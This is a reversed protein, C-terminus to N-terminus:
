RGTMGKWQYKWFTGLAAFALFYPLYLFAAVPYVRLLSRERLRRAALAISAGDLLSKGAFAMWAVPVGLLMGVLLAALLGYVCLGVAAVSLTLKGVGSYMRIRQQVFESWSEPPATWVRANPADCYTAVFGQGVARQLFLHDDGSLMRSAKGFGGVADFVHKRYGFSRGACTIPWGLGIGSMALFAQSLTELALLRGPLTARHDYPSYGAVVDGRGLSRVMEGIWGTEPRCDADTTLVVDGTSQRIATVIAHKKPSWNPPTRDIRLLRLTIPLLPVLRAIADGTGDESRDDIAIVEFRQCPYEQDALSRLCNEINAIENRAPVIVSVFPLDERAPDEARGRRRLVGVWLTLSAAAYLVGGAALFVTLVGDFTM